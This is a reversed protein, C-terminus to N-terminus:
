RFNLLTQLLQRARFDYKFKSAFDQAAHVMSDYLFEDNTLKLIANGLSDPNDEVYFLTFKSDLLEKHVQTDTAVIPLGCAAYELVKIPFREENYPSTAYPLIGIDLKMLFSPVDKHQVHEVFEFNSPNLGKECIQDQLRSRYSPELGIFIFKVFSLDQLSSAAQIIVGLKNDFGSSFGKGLYGVCFDSNSKRKEQTFFSDPVGMPLISVPIDSFDRRHMEAAKESIVILQVQNRIRLLKVVLRNTPSLRHHSEILYRSNKFLLSHIMLTLPERTWYIFRKAGHKPSLALYVGFIVQNLSFALKAVVKFKSDLLRRPARIPRRALTSIENGFEDKGSKGWTLVLAELNIRRAASLTNGVTVGYAKETPYRLQSVYVLRNM